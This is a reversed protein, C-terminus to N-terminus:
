NSFVVCKTTDEAPKDLILNTVKIETAKEVPEDFDVAVNADVLCVAPPDKQRPLVNIVKLEYSNVGHEIKIIDGETLATFKRLAFELRFIFPFFFFPFCFLACFVCFVCVVCVFLM